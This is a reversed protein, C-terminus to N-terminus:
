VKLHALQQKRNTCVIENPELSMFEFFRDYPAKWNYTYRPTRNHLYMAARTIEPWLEAPLKSSPRM